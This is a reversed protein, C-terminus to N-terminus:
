QQGKDIYKPRDPSIIYSGGLIFLIFSLFVGEFNYHDLFIIMLVIATIVVLMGVFKQINSVGVSKQGRTGCHPCRWTSTSVIGGCELCNVLAM